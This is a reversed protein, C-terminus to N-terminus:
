GCRRGELESYKIDEEKEIVIGSAVVAIAGSCAGVCVFFIYLLQVYMLSFSRLLM